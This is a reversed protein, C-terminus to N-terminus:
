QQDASSVCINEDGTNCWDTRKRLRLLGQLDMLSLENSIMLTETVWRKFETQALQAEHSSLNLHRLEGEATKRRFRYDLFPWLRALWVDMVALPIRFAFRGPRTVM